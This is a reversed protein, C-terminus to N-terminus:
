CGGENINMTHKNINQLCWLTAQDKHKRRCIDWPHQELITIKCAENGSPANINRSNAQSEVGGENINM